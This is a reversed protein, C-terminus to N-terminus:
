KKIIKFQRKNGEKSYIKIFYIGKPLEKIKEGEIKVSIFPPNFYKKIIERGELDYLSVGIEKLFPEKFNISISNEFFSPIQIFDPFILHPSSEQVLAAGMMEVWDLQLYYTYCGALQDCRILFYAKRTGPFSGTKVYVLNNEVYYLISDNRWIISDTKFQTGLGYHWVWEYGGPFLIICEYDYAMDNFGAIPQYAGCSSDLTTAVRFKIKAPMGVEAKSRIAFSQGYSSGNYMTLIGNSMTYSGGNNLIEWKTTDIQSGIFDDYLYVQANLSLFGIGIWLGIMYMKSKM